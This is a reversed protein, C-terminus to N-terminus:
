PETASSDPLPIDSHWIERWLKWSKDSQKHWIWIITGSDKYSTLATLPLTVSWTEWLYAYDGFVVIENPKHRYDSMDPYTQLFKTISDIGKIPLINPPFIIADEAYFFKVIESANDKNMGTFMELATEVVKRIAKEESSITNEPKNLQCSNVIFSLLIILLGRFFYINPTKM